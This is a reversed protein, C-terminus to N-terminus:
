YDCSTQIRRSIVLITIREWLTLNEPFVAVVLADSGGGGGGGGISVGSSHM